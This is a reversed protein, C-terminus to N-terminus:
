SERLASFDDSLFTIMIKRNDIESENRMLFIIWAKETWIKPFIIFIRRIQINKWNIYYNYKM